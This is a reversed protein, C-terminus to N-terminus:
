KISCLLHADLTAKFLALQEFLLLRDQCQIARNELFSLDASAHVKHGDEVVQALFATSLLRLEQVTLGQDFHGLLAEFDDNRLRLFEVLDMRGQISVLHLLRQQVEMGELQLLVDVVLDLSSSLHPPHHDVVQGLSLQEVRVQTAEELRSRVDKVLLFAEPVSEDRLV